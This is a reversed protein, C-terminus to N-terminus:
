PMGLHLDLQMFLPSPAQFLLLHVPLHLTSAQFYKLLHRCASWELECEM